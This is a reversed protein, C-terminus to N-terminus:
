AKKPSEESPDSYSPQARFGCMCASVHVFNCICTRMGQVKKLKEKYTNLEQNLKENQASYNAGEKRLEENKNRLIEIEESQEALIEHKSRRTPKM